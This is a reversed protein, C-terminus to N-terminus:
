PVEQSFENPRVQTLVWQIYAKIKTKGTRPNQKIILQFSQLCIYFVKHFTHWYHKFFPLKEAAESVARVRWNVRFKFMINRPKHLLVEIHYIVILSFSYQINVLVLLM